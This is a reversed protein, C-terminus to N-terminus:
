ISGCMSKFTGTAHKDTWCLKNTKEMKRKRLSCYGLECNPCCPTYDSTNLVTISLDKGCFKCVSSVVSVLETACVLVFYVVSLSKVKNVTCSGLKSSFKLCFFLSWWERSLRDRDTMMFAYLFDKKWLTNLSLINRNGGKRKELRSTPLNGTKLSM